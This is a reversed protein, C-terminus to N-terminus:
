DATFRRRAVSKGVYFMWRQVDFVELVEDSMLNRRRHLQEVIGKTLLLLLLLEAISSIPSRPWLLCPGFNFPPPHARKEPHLQTWM